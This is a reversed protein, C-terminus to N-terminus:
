AGSPSDLFGLLIPIRLCREQCRKVPADHLGVNFILRDNSRDLGWEASTSLPGAAGSMTTLVAAATCCCASPSSLWRVTLRGEGVRSPVGPKGLKLDIVIPRSSTVWFKVFELSAQGRLDARRVGSPLLRFHHPAAARVLQLPAKGKSVAPM